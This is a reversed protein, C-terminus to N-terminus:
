ARTKADFWQDVKQRRPRAAWAWRWRTVGGETGCRAEDFKYTHSSAVSRSLKTAKDAKLLTGTFGIFM